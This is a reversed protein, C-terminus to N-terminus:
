ITMFSKNVIACLKKISTIINDYYAIKMIYINMYRLHVIYLHIFMLTNCKVDINILYVIYYQM